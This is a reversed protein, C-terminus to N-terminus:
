TGVAEHPHAAALADEAANLVGLTRGVADQVVHRGAIESLHRQHTVEALPNTQDMFQSLQGSGYFERLAAAIPRVNILERGMATSLNPMTTMRERAIREMRLLGIRIQNQLLEGISRVRRNGLHDIDDSKKDLAKMSFLERVIAALDKLTLLRMDSRFLM